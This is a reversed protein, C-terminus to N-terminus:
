EGRESSALPLRLVITTGEKDSKEIMAKGGLQEVVQRTRWMGYGQGSPKTSFGHEWVRDRNSPDIGSGSDAICLEVGAPFAPAKRIAVDLVGAGDMSEVGNGMVNKIAAAIFPRVAHLRVPADVQNEYSVRLDAHQTRLARTLGLVLTNLDFVTPELGTALDHIGEVLEDARAEIESITSLAGGDVGQARLRERLLEASLKIPGAVKRMQHSFDDVLSERTVRAESEAIIETQDQLDEILEATSIGLAAHTAFQKLVQRLFPAFEFGPDQYIVLVGVLDTGFSLPL